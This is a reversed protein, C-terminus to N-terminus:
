TLPRGDSATPMAPANAPESPPEAKQAKRPRGGKSGNSASAAKQADSGAGRSRLAALYLIERPTLYGVDCSLVASIIGNRVRADGSARLNACMTRLNPWRKEIRELIEPKM